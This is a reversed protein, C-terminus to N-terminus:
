SLLRQAPAKPRAIFHVNLRRLTEVRLLCPVKMYLFSDETSVERQSICPWRKSKRVFILHESIQHTWGSVETGSKVFHILIWKYTHTSIKGNAQNSVVKDRWMQSIAPFLFIGACMKRMFASRLTSNKYVKTLFLNTTPHEDGHQRQWIGVSLLVFHNHQLLLLM